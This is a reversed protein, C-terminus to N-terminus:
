VLRVPLLNLERIHDWRQLFNTSWKKKKNYHSLVKMLLPDDRCRKLLQREAMHNFSLFNLAIAASGKVQDSPSSLLQCLLSVVDIAVMADPLGARTHSLRAVCDAALATVDNSRSGELLGMLTQIGTASIYSLDKDSIIRALVVVQFAAHARDTQNTSELFPAFDCWQVGGCQTMEKQQNSSNYAFTALTTGALLRVEEDPSHLLQLIHRYSFGPNKCVMHLNRSHGLVAAAVALAAEVQILESPSHTMLAILFKLGRANAVATQNKGHPIYGVGLCIHRLAQVASIVVDERDSRLLRVVHHTGSSLAAVNRLDYPGQVLISLGQSGILNLKWSPSGIFEVLLGLGIRAAITRQTETDAGALVWLTQAVAEQTHQSQNKRLLQVLPTIVSSKMIAEQAHCNGQVLRCLSRVASMQVEKYKSKLMQQLYPRVNESIIVNQNKPNGWSIDGVAEGWAILLPKSSCEKFLHVLNPLFGTQRGIAERYVESNMSLLGIAKLAPLLIAEKNEYDINSIVKLLAPTINASYAETFDKDSALECVAEMLDALLDHSRQLVLSVIVQTGGNELIERKATKYRLVFKLLKLVTNKVDNPLNAKLVDILGSVLGEAVFIDMHSSLDGDSQSALGFIAACSSLVDSEIDSDLLTVLKKCVNLNSNDLHLFQRLLDFHGHLACTEVVGHNQRNVFTIDAGLNVLLNVMEQRGSSAALLLPSNQLGDDTLTELIEKGTSEVLREMLSLHSRFAAHHVPAWGQESPVELDM